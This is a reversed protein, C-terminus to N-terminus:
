SDLYAALDAPCRGAGFTGHLDRRSGVGLAQPRHLVPRDAAAHSLVARRDGTVVHRGFRQRWLGGRPGDLLETHFDLFLVVASTGSDAVHRSAHATGFVPVDSRHPPSRCLYPRDPFFPTHLLSPFLQQGQACGPPNWRHPLRVVCLLPGRRELNTTRLSLRLFAAHCSRNCYSGYFLALDIRQRHSAWALRGAGSHAWFSPAARGTASSHCRYGDRETGARRKRPPSSTLIRSPASCSAYLEIQKWPRGASLTAAPSFPFNICRGTLGFFPGGPTAFGGTFKRFGSAATSPSIAKARPIAFARMSKTSVWLISITPLPLSSNPEPGRSATCRPSPLRCGPCTSSLRAPFWWTSAGIPLPCTRPTERFSRPLRRTTQCSSKAAPPM